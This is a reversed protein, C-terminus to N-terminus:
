PSDFLAANGIMGYLNDDEESDYGGLNQMGFAYDDDVGAGGMLKQNSYLIGSEEYGGVGDQNESTRAVMSLWELNHWQFKQQRIKTVWDEDIDAIIDLCADCMKRIEVNRDYLLDILYSVVQTKTILVTRTADHLLLRYIAYIIQLIIEDDEEKAMMMEMLIPLINTRAIMPAIGEDSAMTGLLVIMELTVDDNSSIGSGDAGAGAGNTSPSRAPAGTQTIVTSLWKSVYDLLNYAEALKAFDFDPITLNGLIGLIEVLLDPTNFAKLLLNMLDDIYDLFLMKTDGEHQSINRLMKFLLTDRTKIARKMLFKLGNDECIVEANRPNAAVNIALAMVEVPVREGKHELITKILLPICDTVSFISRNREDVSLMYLLQLATVQQMKNNLLEAYKNIFGKEVMNNRFHEDYSLNLLFRTLLAQLGKVLVDKNERFISLKKLFTFILILLEPTKRDLMSALYTIIDRKIMKVEINVDEALNLLLHFSVFLLQDQKRLMAQFKRHEQELERILSNNDPNQSRHRQFEQDAIRLCMDGIKNATIIPHFASFNSFCFFIYIINTVLEMSKKGDERLVRSLASMLAENAVLYEMHDPVRALQLINRTSNIKDPIEEYLGEIYQEINDMSAIEAVM